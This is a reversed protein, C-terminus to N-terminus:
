DARWARLADAVADAMARLAAGDATGHEVESSVEALRSAGLLRSSSTLTHVLKHAAETDGAVAAAVIGEIRAPLEDLYTGILDVVISRDGLEDALVALVERDVVDGAVTVAVPEAAVAPQAPMQQAPIPQEPMAELRARVRDLASSLDHLSVPKPVYDDMGAELCSTRDGLSASATVGIIAVRRGTGAEAARIRRTTELGDIGPLHYDMLVVDVDAAAPSALHDLGDEGSGVIVCDIGLTRLQARVLQQNVVNDEVVLVGLTRPAAPREPVPPLDAPDDARRRPPEDAEELPLVVRFTTGVGFTSEVGITGGMLTVIRQVISLGLGAGAAAGATSASRFPEFVSDLEDAPIGAGSDVVEIALHDGGEVTAIVRVRGAATFKMANGVLNSLVQRLRVPDTRVLAPIATDVLAALEVSARSDVSQISVVDNLLSRLDVASPELTVSGMELRSTTLLDDVVRTLDHLQRNLTGAMRQSARPLESTALLESMGQLAHLPNRLEHSVTAVMRSRLEAEALADDRSERLQAVLEHHSTVNRSTIVIGGIDPDDLLNVAHVELTEITDDASRVRIETHVMLGPQELVQERLALVREADEPVMIDFISRQAWFELPYGMIPKYRGSTELVRGDGDILTITDHINEILKRLRGDGLPEREVVPTLAGLLGICEGDHRLATTELRARVTRGDKRVYTKETTYHDVEGSVLRQLYHQTWTQETSRTLQAVDLTALEDVEYGLLAAYAANGMIQRGQPDLLSLAIPAQEVVARWFTEATSRAASVLDMEVAHEGHDTVGAERRLSSEIQQAMPKSLAPALGAHVFILFPDLGNLRRDPIRV